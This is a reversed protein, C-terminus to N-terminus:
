KEIGFICIIRIVVSGNSRLYTLSPEVISPHCPPPQVLEDQGLEVPNGRPASAAAAFLLGKHFAGVAPETSPATHVARAAIQPRTKDGLQQARGEAAPVSQSEVCVLHSSFLCPLPLQPQLTDCM